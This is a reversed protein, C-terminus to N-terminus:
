MVSGGRVNEIRRELVGKKNGMMEHIDKESVEQIDKYGGLEITYLSIDPWLRNIINQQGEKGPKDNDLCLILKNINQRILEEQGKSMISGLLAIGNYGHKALWIADLSGETLVYTDENPYMYLGFLLREKQLGKSYKYKPKEIDNSVRYIIGRLKSDIDRVPITVCQKGEDYGIEWKRLTVEDFGRNILYQPIDAKYKSMEKESYFKNSKHTSKNEISSIDINEGFQSIYLMAKLENCGEVRQVLQILNGGGCGAFCNWLGSEININFSPNNDQHFPCHCYLEETDEHSVSLGLNEIVERVDVKLEGFIM